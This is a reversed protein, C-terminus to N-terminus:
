RVAMAGPLDSLQGVTRVSRARHRRVSSQEGPVARLVVIEVDSPLTSTAAFIAEVDSLAGTVILAVSTQPAIVQMALVDEALTGNTRSVRCLADLVQGTSAGVVREVHSLLNLDHGIRAASAALSAAVEVALEYSDEDAYSGMAPDLLVSAQTRRSDHYQRVLLEGARASSRWHVHRLDDGRVYERLAHFALDSMSIESSPTGELDRLQTSGLSEVALMRPRVYLDVPDAWVKRRLTLGVPDSLHQVAPGVQYVGRRHTPIIMSREQVAGGGTDSSGTESSGAESSGAGPRLTDFRLWGVKTGADLRVLPHLVPLRGRAAVQLRVQVYEGAVTRPPSLTIRASVSSPQLLWPICCALVALCLAGILRLEVLGTVSAAYMILPGLFLLSWGTATLLGLWGRLRRVGRM